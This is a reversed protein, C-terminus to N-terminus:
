LFAGPVYPHTFWFCSGEGERSEVGIKGGMRNVLSQCISLGLGAGQVFSDLKVFRNFIEHKQEDPIGKGTDTVCFRVQNEDELSYSLTISGKTTFKLANTLFNSLVQVIRNKDADIVIQPSNEDFRLEVASDRKKHSFTAIVERCLQPVDVRGMVLDIM